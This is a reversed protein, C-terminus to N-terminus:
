RRWVDWRGRVGNWTALLIAGQMALGWAIRHRLQRGTAGRLLLIALAGAAGAALVGWGIPAAAVFAVGLASIALGVLAYPTLLRLLKHCLFPLWRPNRWPLLVRPMWALLQFNGTLTRVKRVLEQEPTTTRLDEAMATADYGVRHGELILRMPIWLDDLILGPPLARWLAPRMAYISGSVGITSHLRAEASRLRREMKWYWSIPSGANEENGIRLAGSVAAFSEDGLADVLRRIADSAFRQHTDTFVLVNGTALPAGANLACAKGGPPQGGVVVLRHPSPILGDLHYGTPDGDVAVILELRDAPWDGALMDQLRARVAAPSERTALLASVLTDPEASAGPRAPGREGATITLWPYVVWAILLAAASVAGVLLWQIM